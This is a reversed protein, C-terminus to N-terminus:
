PDLKFTILNVEVDTGCRRQDQQHAERARGLAFTEAPEDGQNTSWLNHWRM